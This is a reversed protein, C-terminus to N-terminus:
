RGNLTNISRAPPHEKIYRYRNRLNEKLRMLEKSIGVKYLHPNEFRKYEAPLLALRSQAYQATASLSPPATLRKGKEMVKQLLPEKKFGAIVLSKGTEFPHHVVDITEGEGSLLVADAGYFLGQEDTVRLVQKIGPLTLKKLDESLKIRPKGGAMSLKYVGDLAADPKGTVLRTGAGFIDIPAQQELLSKIVYEDLQNSVVIKIYPLGAEDLMARAAKALYALDGSDLRVANARYGQQEMEKAVTIANPVGSKLTDYTDVLFVCDTPRARAFARFAELEEDYSEIFSHAMTGAAPIGYLQAAYVNSTSNFGGVVAARAALVAGPGHARRLGFDSLARDGAVYRMRSAKTAVLSEFNLINLLLSEVLQAEIITGEVRLLPCDPFVVEGETVSYVDGRFMFKKLYDIFLPHLKLERLFAIDEATFHLGELVKLLDQLGAFLVYGGQNPIKRFFYDFCAPDDQRGELFYTQGMTLQYLDTYNGSIFSLM